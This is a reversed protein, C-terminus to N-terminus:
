TLSEAKLIQIKLEIELDLKYVFVNVYYTIVRQLFPVGGGFYVGMAVNSPVVV